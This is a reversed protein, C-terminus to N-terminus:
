EIGLTPIDEPALWQGFAVEALQPTGAPTSTRSAYRVYIDSVGTALIFPLSNRRLAAPERWILPGRGEPHILLPALAAM